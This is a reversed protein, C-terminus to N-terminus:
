AASEGSSRGEEQHLPGDILRYGVGWVNVVLQDGDRRLKQRLRCAHSDLTRTSGITRYGWLQRLLEDKTFVRTPESALARLLAFEKSALTLKRGHLTATRAGPDIELAGVRLGNPARREYCRALLARVRARLEHYSFPKAIVDDCGRDFYRLRSLEDTQSTLVILPMDPDIRSAVGDGGRVADLLSLTEGNVDCVVLDPREAELLELAGARDEAILIEYGDATLNDGLFTRIVHDEEALLILRKTHM